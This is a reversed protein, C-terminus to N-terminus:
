LLFQGRLDEGQLQAGLLFLPSSLLLLGLLPFWHIFDWSRVKANLAGRGCQGNSSQNIKWSCAEAEGAGMLAM